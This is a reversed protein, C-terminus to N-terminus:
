NTAPCTWGGLARELEIAVGITRGDAGHAGVVQVGLPLGRRDLGLPVQTVPFGLPNWVATYVWDFLRPPVLPSGHRPATRTYPPYLLVGDGVLEAIETRLSSRLAIARAVRSKLFKPALELVALGLSPLTFDSRGAILKVLELAVNPSGLMERYSQGGSSMAASWVDLSDRLSHIRTTRLRAGRDALASAARLQAARLDRSVPTRGNDEVVHVTMGDLRADPDIQKGALISTLLPLDEARRCLPGTTLLEAAVGEALPFQGENPILGVSPKHGFVGNFFAPMRISGGIDSGLGFPSAGAGVIAGEGGSSGGVTRTPDYPNRTLGYLQNKSEMWMCLESTNTVGIPIAGAARLRTVTPADERAITGKRAVLGATNPMGAVHFSEKITCPVGHLPGKPDTRDAADAEALAADFRDAVIANLTPNLTRARTIHAEVVRRSTLRKERIARALWTASRSLLDEM